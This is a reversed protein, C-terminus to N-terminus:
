QPTELPSTPLGPTSSATIYLTLPPLQKNADKNSLNQTFANSRLSQSSPASRHLASLSTVDPTGAWFCVDKWVGLCAFLGEEEKEEGGEGEYEQALRNPVTAQSPLFFACKARLLAETLIQSSGPPTLFLKAGTTPNVSETPRLWRALLATTRM